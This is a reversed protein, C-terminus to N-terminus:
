TGPNLVEFMFTFYPDDGGSHKVWGVGSESWGTAHSIYRVNDGISLDPKSIIMTAQGDSDGSTYTNDYDSWSRADAQISYTGPPAWAALGVAIDISVTSVSGPDVFNSPESPMGDIANWDSKTPNNMGWGTSSTCEEIGSPWSIIAGAPCTNSTSPIIYATNDGGSSDDRTDPASGGWYDTVPNIAVATLLSTGHSVQIISSMEANTGDDLTVFSNDPVTIVFDVVASDSAAGYNNVKVTYTKTVVDGTASSPETSQTTPSIEKVDVSYGDLGFVCPYFATFTGGDGSGTNTGSLRIQMTNRVYQEELNGSGDSLQEVMGLDAFFTQKNTNDFTSNGTWKEPLVTYNENPISYLTSQQDTARWRVDHWAGSSGARVQAKVHADTLDYEAEVVLFPRSNWVDFTDSVLAGDEEGNWVYSGASWGDGMNASTTGWEDGNLLAAGLVVTIIRTNDAYNEDNNQQDDARKATVTLQYIGPLLGSGWTWDNGATTPNITYSDGKELSFPITTYVFDDDGSPWVKLRNSDRMVATVLIENQPELGIGKVTVSLDHTGGSAAYRDTVVDTIGLNNRYENGIVALDDLRVGKGGGNDVVVRFDIWTQYGEFPQLSLEVVQWQLKDSSGWVCGCDGDFIAPNGNPLSTDPDAHELITWSGSTLKQDSDFDTAARVELRDGAALDWKMAVQLIPNYAARLDVNVETGFQAAVHGDRDFTDQTILSDDAKGGGNNAGITESGDEASYEWVYQGSYADNTVDRMMWLNDTTSLRDVKTYVYIPVITGNGDTYTRDSDVDDFFFTDFVRFEVTLSNNWPFFDKGSPAEAEVTVRYTNAEICQFVAFLEKQETNKTVDGYNSNGDISSILVRKSGAIFNDSSLLSSKDVNQKNEVSYLVSLATWDSEGANIITANIERWLSNGD